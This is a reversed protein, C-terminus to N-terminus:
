QLGMIAPLYHHLHSTYIAFSSDRRMKQEAAKMMFLSKQDLLAKKFM